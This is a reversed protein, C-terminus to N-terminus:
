RTIMSQSSTSRIMSNNRVFHELFFTKSSKIEEPTIIHNAEFLNVINEECFDTSVYEKKSSLEIYKRNDIAIIFPRKGIEDHFQVYLIVLHFGNKTTIEQM